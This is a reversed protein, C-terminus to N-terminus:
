ATAARLQNLESQLRDRDARLIVLDDAMGPLTQHWPDSLDVDVVWQAVEEGTFRTGATPGDAPTAAGVEGTGLDIEPAFRSLGTAQQMRATSGSAVAARMSTSHLRGALERLEARPYGEVGWSLAVLRDVLAYLRRSVHLAHGSMEGLAVRNRAPQVASGTPSQMQGQRSHGLGRRNPPWITPVPAPSGSSTAVGTSTHLRRALETPYELWHDQVPWNSAGMEALLACLLEAVDYAQRGLEAEDGEHRDTVTAPDPVQQATRM